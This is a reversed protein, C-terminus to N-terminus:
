PNAVIAEIRAAVIAAEGPRLCIPNLLIRGHDVEEPDVHIAPSSEALRRLLTAAPIWRPTVALTPVPQAARLQVVVGDVGALIDAILSVEALRQAHEAGEDTEVFRGLAALLGVIQEKGVKCPRGIGHPPLGRLRSRDIFGPPPAFLGEPYDMDLMQLAASMILDHRGCLMGTGQPGGIAKGGSIAVLDAGEAIFRRLNARPPLEAAADVLVPVGAAHAVEVVEPLTPRAHGTAVWLVCATQPGIAAALEWPEADRCGAGSFRDPLGVEVVRLGVTRVAHDYQNRQSRVMVVESRLGHTDPLRAMAAPDNGAVCAAAGLLLGAAAGSTVLGAEAGTHRAITASAVAQLQVIDVCSTAAEAMAAAVDPHMPMGSLRTAPGKANIIPAIGLRSWVTSM